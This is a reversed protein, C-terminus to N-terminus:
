LGFRPPLALSPINLPHVSPFPHPLTPAAPPLFAPGPCSPPNPQLHAALGHWCPNVRLCRRPCLHLRPGVSSFDGGEAKKAAAAVEEDRPTVRPNISRMAESRAWETGGSAAERALRSSYLSLWALWQRRDEEEKEAATMQLVHLLSPQASPVLAEPILFSSPEPGQRPIGGGKEGFSERGRRHRGKRIEGEQKEHM